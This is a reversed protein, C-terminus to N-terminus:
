LLTQKKSTPKYSVLLGFFLSCEQQTIDLNKEPRSLKEQGTDSQVIKVKKKRQFGFLVSKVIVHTM